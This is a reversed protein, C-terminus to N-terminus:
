EGIVAKIRVGCQGFQDQVTQLFRECNPTIDYKFDIEIEAREVTDPFYEKWQESELFAMYSNLKDQLLILHDYEKEWGLHDTILLTLCKGDESVGAADLQNTELVSM